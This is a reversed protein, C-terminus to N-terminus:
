KFTIHIHPPSNERLAKKGTVEQAVRMMVGEQKRTMAPIKAAADGYVSIDIAGARQHASMLTGKDAYGKLLEGMKQVTTTKSEGKKIIEFLEKVVTRNKYHKLEVDGNIYVNYMADAQRYADRTGSNVNFRQGTEKFYLPGIKDLVAIADAELVIGSDITYYTSIQNKEDDKKASVFIPKNVYSNVDDVIGAKAINLFQKASEQSLKTIQGNNSRYSVVELKSLYTRDTSDLESELQNLKYASELYYIITKRVPSDDIPCPLGTVAYYDSVIRNLIDPTPSIFPAFWFLLKSRKVFSATFLRQRYYESYSNLIKDVDPFYIPPVTEIRSKSFTYSGPVQLLPTLYNWLFNVPSFYSEILLDTQVVM